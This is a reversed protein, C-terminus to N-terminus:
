PCGAKKSIHDNPRQWFEGHEPCIICVKTNVNAFQVKSYDYKNGHIKVANTFFWEADKKSNKICKPCGQGKLHKIPAQWFEGHEPCIICVKNKNTTYVVKSYDYKDGHVSISEKIFDQTTKKINGM